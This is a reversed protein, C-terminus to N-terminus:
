MSYDDEDLKAQLGKKKPFGGGKPKNKKKRKLFGFLGKKKASKKNQEKVIKAVADQKTKDPTNIQKTSTRTTDFTYNPRNDRLLVADNEMRSEILDMQKGSISHRTGRSHSGASVSSIDDRAGDGDVAISPGNVNMHGANNRDGM